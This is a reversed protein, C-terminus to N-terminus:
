RSELARIAWEANRTIYFIVALSAALFLAAVPFAGIALPSLGGQKWRAAFLLFTPPLVALVRITWATVFGIFRAPRNPWIKAFSEYIALLEPYDTSWLSRTVSTTRCLERRKARQM